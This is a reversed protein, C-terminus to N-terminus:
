EWLSSGADDGNSLVLNGLDSLHATTVNPTTNTVNSSWFFRLKAM